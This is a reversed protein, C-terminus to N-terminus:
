YSREDPGSPPQVQLVTVGRERLTLVADAPAASDTVLTSLATIPLVRAPGSQHFKASDALVILERATAIM